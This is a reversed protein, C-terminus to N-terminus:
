ENSITKEIIEKLRILVNQESFQDAFQRIKTSDFTREKNIISLMASALSPPENVDVQIGLQPPLDDGIGVSTTITPTGCSWAEALVISFTEYSSFLIFADAKQFYPVLETSSLPGLFSIRNDIELQRAYNVWIGLDEESIITLHFDDNEKLLACADLIGKPNKVLGDLTSVHLFEIPGSVSKEKPTFISTNVPNPILAINKKPFDPTLDKRLFPSVAALTDISKSLRVLILRDLISRNKRIEKRFYSGHELVLLPCNFHKKAELFQLGRPLMVHGFILDVSEILSFGNKLAKHQNRYAQLITKGRPHYILIERFDVNLNEVVEMEQKASGKALACTHLVTVQYSQSLLTAFRKVFNGLYPDFKTPYWSSLILIHRKPNSLIQNENM